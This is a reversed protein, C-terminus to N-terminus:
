LPSRHAITYPYLPADADPHTNPDTHNDPHAHHGSRGASAYNDLNGHCTTHRHSKAPIDISTRCNPQSDSHADIIGGCRNGPNRTRWRCRLIYSYSGHASQDPHTIPQAIPQAHDAISQAIPQAHDAISQAIPQAGCWVVPSNRYGPRCTPGNTDSQDWM